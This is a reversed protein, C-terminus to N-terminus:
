QASPLAPHLKLNLNNELFFHFIDEKLKISHSTFTSIFSVQLGKERAIKYGHMTKEYYGSGRQFDNIEVPGDLSSGIPIHYEAFLEAIQPTMLWLNTQIAFAPNLHSLERSLLPLAKKYFDYGALLPEGGHFTFTVPEERFNKLWRVTEEVIEISMIESEKDVGWCYSCNSPCDMSPILMVHFAM